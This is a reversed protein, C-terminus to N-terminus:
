AKTLIEDYGSSYKDKLSDIVKNIEKTSSYPWSTDKLPQNFYKFLNQLPSADDEKENIRKNSNSRGAINLFYNSLEQVITIQKYVTHNNIRLSKINNAITLNSTEKCKINWTAKMKNKSKIIVEKYYLEKVEKTVESLIKCYHKYYLM